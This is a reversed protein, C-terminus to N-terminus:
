NAKKQKKSTAPKHKSLAEAIVEDGKAIVEAERPDYDGRKEKVLAAYLLDFPDADKPRGGKTKPLVWGDALTKQELQDAMEKGHNEEMQKLRAMFRRYHLDCLGRSKLESSGCVKCGTKKPQPKDTGHQDKTGM